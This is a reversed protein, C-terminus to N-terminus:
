KRVCIVRVTAAKADASKGDLGVGNGTLFDRVVAASVLVAQTGPVASTAGAVVAQKALALGTFRSDADMAPAGSFGLGLSPTLSLEGSGASTGQATAQAKVASVASGGGQNQPDAIGVIDLSSKASGPALNLPRLGRAGYIRLLALGHAKDDAVRDAHGFGGITIALCGDVIERDTVVAGDESVVLGTGYDVTRRPPPAAAATPFAAFASSMAIVVPDLTSEMAQDYLITLTRVEDGRFTGRVYFKKQEQTGSLVFFDPKVATYGVTRGAPEKKEREALAATTPNAEKRRALLIQVTGTPSSWKSGGADSAQQPVLKTPLGIKAGTVPDTVIKWGVAEQKRRAADALASREQPNLVGTPEGGKLKQYAKIANVMRASAEGTIAGNYQGVWALDSQLALRQAATMANAPDAPPQAAPRAPAAAGTKPQVGSSPPTSLQALAPSVGLLLTASISTAWALPRM